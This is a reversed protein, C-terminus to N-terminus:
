CNIGLSVSPRSPMLTLSCLPESQTLQKVGWHVCRIIGLQTNSSFLGSKLVIILMTMPTYLSM